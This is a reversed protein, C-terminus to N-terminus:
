SVKSMLTVHSLSQQGALQVNLLRSSDWTTSRLDARVVASSMFVVITFLSGVKLCVCYHCQSHHTLLISVYNSTSQQLEPCSTLDEKRWLGSGEMQPRLDQAMVQGRLYSIHLIIQTDYEHIAAWHIVLCYYHLSMM